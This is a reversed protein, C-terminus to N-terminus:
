HSGRASRIHQAEAWMDEAGERTYAAMKRIQLGVLSTLLALRQGMDDVIGEARQMEAQPMQGQPALGDAVKGKPQKSQRGKATGQQATPEIRTARIRTATQQFRQRTLAAFSGISQGIRDVVEESRVMAPQVTTREQTQTM